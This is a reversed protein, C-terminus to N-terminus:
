RKLSLWFYIRFILSCVVVEFYNTPYASILWPFTNKIFCRVLVPKNKKTWFKKKGKFIIKAVTKRQGWSLQYMLNISSLTSSEHSASSGCTRDCVELGTWCSEKFSSKCPGKREVHRKQKEERQKLAPASNSSFCIETPKSGKNPTKRELM